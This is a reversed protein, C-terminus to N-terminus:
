NRKVMTVKRRAQWPLIMELTEGANKWATERTTGNNFEHLLFRSVVKNEIAQLTSKSDLLQRYMQGHKV